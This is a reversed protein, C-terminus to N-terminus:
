RIIALKGTTRQGRDNGVHYLYVGSAARDGSDTSTDWEATGGDPANLVRVARGSITYISITSHPTLGDFVIAMHGRSPKFPNPYVIVRDLNERAARYFLGFLTFHGTRASVCGPQRVV